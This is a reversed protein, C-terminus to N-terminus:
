DDYIDDANEPEYEDDNEAQNGDVINDKFDKFYENYGSYTKKAVPKILSIHEVPFSVLKPKGYGCSDVVIDLWVIRNNVM